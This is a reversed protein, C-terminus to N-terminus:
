VDVSAVLVFNQSEHQEHRGSETEKAETKGRGREDEEGDTIRGCLVYLGQCM